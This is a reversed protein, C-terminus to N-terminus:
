KRRAQGLDIDRPRRPSLKGFVERAAGPPVAYALAPRLVVHDLIDDDVQRDVSSMIGRSVVSNRHCAGELRMKGADAERELRDDGAGHEASDGDLQHLRM